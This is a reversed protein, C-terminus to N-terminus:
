AGLDRGDEIRRQRPAFNRGGVGNRQEFGIPRVQVRKELCRVQRAVFVHAVVDGVDDTAVDVERVDAVHATREAPERTVGVFRVGVVSGIFFHQRLARVRNRATRGFHANLTPDMGLAVVIVVVVNQLGDLRNIGVKVDVRKGGFFHVVPVLRTSHWEGLIQLPEDVCPKSRHGAGSGFNQVVVNAVHERRVFELGIAPDLDHAGRMRDAQTRGRGQHVSVDFRRFVNRVMEVQQAPDLLISAAESLKNRQAEDM